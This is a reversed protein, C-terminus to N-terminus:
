EKLLATWDTLLTLTRAPEEGSVSNVLFRQGDASVEYISDEPSVKQLRVPFLPVPSGAQLSAAGLSLPVAMIRNDSSLYFIERGDRRWRPHSGGATSVQWQGGPGPFPRIYIEFRGSEDSAYAIWRADPSFRSNEQVTAETAFASARREGTMSLAWLQFNRKGGAPLTGFSLFRGDSSWDDPWNEYPAQLLVEESAGGIPKVAM